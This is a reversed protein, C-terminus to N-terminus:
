DNKGLYMYLNDNVPLFKLNHKQQIEMHARSEGATWLPTSFWDDYRILCGKAVMNKTFMWDLAEYASIYLDTDIHLFTAKNDKLSEALKDTLVDKFWGDYLFVSNNYNWKEYLKNIAEQKSDLGFENVVNFVGPKWDPNCWVGDKESPLGEFSDFGYIYKFEKNYKYSEQIITYISNGTCVGFEYMCGDPTICDRYNSFINEIPVYM